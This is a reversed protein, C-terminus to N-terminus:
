FQQAAVPETLSTQALPELDYHRIGVAGSYLGISINPSDCYFFSLVIHDNVDCILLRWIERNTNKGPTATM